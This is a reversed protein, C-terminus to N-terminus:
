TLVIVNRTNIKMKIGKLLAGQKGLVKVAPELKADENKKNDATGSAQNQLHQVWCAGLEWRIPRPSQSSEAQLKLLSHQATSWYKESWYM